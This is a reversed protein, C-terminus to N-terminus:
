CAQKDRLLDSGGSVLDSEGSICITKVDRKLARRAAAGSLQSPLRVGAKDLSGELEEPVVEVYLGPHCGHLEKFLHPAHTSVLQEAWM